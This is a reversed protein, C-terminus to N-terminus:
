WKDLAHLINTTRKSFKIFKFVRNILEIFKVIPLIITFLIIIGSLLYDGSEFFMKVSDFLRVEQFKLGIGFLSQKTSLIPYVLGLVFFLISLFLSVYITFRLHM